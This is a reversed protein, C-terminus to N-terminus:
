VHARGIEENMEDPESAPELEPQCNDILNPEPNPNTKMIGEIEPELQFNRKLQDAILQYVSDCEIDSWTERLDTELFYAVTRRVSHDQEQRSQLSVVFTAFTQWPSQESEHSARDRNPSGTTFTAEPCLAAM